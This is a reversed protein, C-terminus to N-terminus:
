RGFAGLVGPEAHLIYHGPTPNAVMKNAILGFVKGRQEPTLVMIIASVWEEGRAKIELGNPLLFRIEALHHQHQQPESM